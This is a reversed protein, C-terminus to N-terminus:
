GAFVYCARGNYVAETFSTELLLLEGDGQHELIGLNFYGNSKKEISKQIQQLDTRLIFKYRPEYSSM